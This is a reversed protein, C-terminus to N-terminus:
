VFWIVLPIIQIKNNELCIKFILIYILSAFIFHVVLWQNGPGKKKKPGCIFEPWLLENSFHFHSKRDLRQNRRPWDSVYM